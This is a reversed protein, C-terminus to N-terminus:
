QESRTHGTSHAAGDKLVVSGSISFLQDFAVGVVGGLEGDHLAAERPQDAIKWLWDVDDGHDTAVVRAFAKQEVLEGPHSRFTKDHRVRDVRCSSADLHGPCSEVTLLDQPEVGLAECRSLVRAVIRRSARQPRPSERM